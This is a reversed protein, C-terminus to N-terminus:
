IIEEGTPTLLTATIFILLNKKERNRYKYRFLKGLLPIDGLLPIKKNVLRDEDEMLGGLIITSGTRITISTQATRTGIIPYWLDDETVRTHPQIRDILFQVTPNIDLTILGGEGVRPTVMLTIGTVKEDITYTWVWIPDEATGRNEVNVESIYPFTKSVQMVAPQGSITTVKPSSLLNSKKTQELAHLYANIFHGDFTTKSIFFDFGGGGRTGPIGYWSLPFKTEEDEDWQIGDNYPVSGENHSGDGLPVGSRTNPTGRIEVDSFNGSGTPRRYWDWKVGLEDIDGVGVEIFKAEIIVQKPGVDILRLLERILRHNTPTDTITLLGVAPNFVIKRGDQPPLAKELYDTIELVTGGDEEEEYQAFLSSVTILMLSAFLACIIKKKPKLLNLVKIM